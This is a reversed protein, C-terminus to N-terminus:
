RVPREHLRCLVYKGAVTIGAILGEACVEWGLGPMVVSSQWGESVGSPLLFTSSFANLM